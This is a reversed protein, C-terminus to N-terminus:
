GGIPLRDGLGDSHSQDTLRAALRITMELADPGDDHDGVPFTRLQDVLLRTSPTERFRFRHADLYPGLRRIRVLKNVRNNILWPTTGLVGQAALEAEFQGGLLDQFQNAEIGIADPKFRRYWAVGDAVIQTTPRRALDAEVYFLGDSGIGLMVIASYDGRRSDGGKSPDIAITRVTLNEPWAEFWVHEDFYADPWECLNPDIPSNQKEREFTAHGGEARLCMLAYLDEVEPWLVRSGEDMEAQHQLYFERARQIHNSAAVDTYIAEWEEWLSRNKPWQLIAQFIRSVWGPTTCLEVALADRHLATALNVVNTERTGAKLLTGHFWTRTNERQLASCIHGDNQLDDCVILTPRVNRYRRGRVRQGTGFAEIAVGNRLVISGSRWVRGRGVADPYREALEKNELLENQVNDLHARAQGHTDSVIWIYAERGEVAMRLVYALAGLTSKAAGRPGLLNLKSGREDAFRDLRRAMERHMLSPEKAFHDPLYRQGWDILGLGNVGGSASLERRRQGHRRALRERFGCLLPIVRDPDIGFDYDDLHKM